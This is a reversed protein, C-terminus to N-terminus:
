APWQKTLGVHRRMEPNSLSPDLTVDINKLQSQRNFTFVCEVEPHEYFVDTEEGDDHQWYPVGIDQSCSEITLSKLDVAKGGTTLKGAYPQYKNYENLNPRILFHFQRITRRFGMTTFYLGLSHYEFVNGLRTLDSSGLFSLSEIPDGLGASNLRFSDLNLNLDIRESHWASTPDDSGLVRYCLYHVLSKM